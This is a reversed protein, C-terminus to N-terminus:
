RVWAVRRGTVFKVFAVAAASNLIVFTSAADAVRALPGRLLKTMAILGLCYFAVQLILAARYIPQPLASAAILAAVLAFPAFLRMLKHSVFEFRLPNVSTLLWPAFQLLQYNGTLTRVKRSFEREAGQDAVDWAHASPVFIVRFGQRAVHMPIFVDDLITGAPVTVILHRRVAYLAGTAGVVSGAMSEMERVSKEIRWYLGMGRVVEGSDPDGLMLEGSACGVDPDAFQAALMRLAGREIRQRADTFLVIDGHALAIADNLGAAKGRSEQVAVIKLCPNPHRSLIDNTSDTSGDSVVIIELLEAPYDLSQLNSLKSELVGAENRVVMVISVSPTGGSARVPQARFRGRLWLWAPYGAYTYALMAVSSWFVWKM